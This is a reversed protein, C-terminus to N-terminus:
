DAPLRAAPRPVYLQLVQQRMIGAQRSVNLEELGCVRWGMEKLATEFQRQLGLRADPRLVGVRPENQQTLRQLRNRTIRQGPPCMALDKLRKAHGRGPEIRREMRPTQNRRGLFISRPPM